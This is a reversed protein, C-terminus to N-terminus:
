SIIANINNIVNAIKKISPYGTANVNAPVDIAKAKKPYKNSKNGRTSKLTSGLLIKLIKVFSVRIATGKNIKM